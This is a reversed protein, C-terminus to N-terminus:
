NAPTKVYQPFCEAFVAQTRDRVARWGRDAFAPDAADGFRPNVTWRSRQSRNASSRHLLLSHFVVVDGEELPMLTLGAHEAADADVVFHLVAHMTGSGPEHRSFNMEVPMITRHSGPVVVLPGMDHDVRKLPYWITAANLSMVNYQFDQHWDFNRVDDNPPDIRFQAIDHISLLTDCNLCAKCVAHLTPDALIGFFFPSDKIARIIEMAYRRDLRMLANFNDDIDDSTTRHGLRELRIVLLRNVADRQERLRDVPILNKLVAIGFEDFAGRLRPAEVGAEFTFDDVVTM